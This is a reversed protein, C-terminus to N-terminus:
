KISYTKGNLRRLQTVLEMVPDEIEISSRVLSEVTIEDLKHKEIMSNLTEIVNKYIEPIFQNM